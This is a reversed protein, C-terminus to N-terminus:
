AHFIKYSDDLDKLFHETVYINSHESVHYTTM